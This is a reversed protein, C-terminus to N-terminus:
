SPGRSCRLWSVPQPDSTGHQTPALRDKLRLFPSEVYRFSLWGAGFTYLLAAPVLLGGLHRQQLRPLVQGAFLFLPVAHLFYLGYSRRGIALLPAVHLARFLWSGPQIAMLLLGASFLAVLSLGITNVVPDNIWNVAGTAHLNPSFMVILGGLLPLPLVLMPWAVRRLTEAGPQNPGRLWLAIAGGLLLGDLRTLTNFYTAGHLATAPSLRWYLERLVPSIGIVVCCLVILKRRSRVLAVVTPWLLYFQEEICLSWLPVLDLAQAGGHVFLRRCLLM